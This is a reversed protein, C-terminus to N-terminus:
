RDRYFLTKYFFFTKELLIRWKGFYQDEVKVDRGIMEPMKSEMIAQQPYDKARMSHPFSLMKELLVRNNYPFTLPHAMGMSLTCGSAGLAIRYEWYFLDSHEFNFIPKEMGTEKMYQRYEIETEKLLHPMFFFRTQMIAMQRANLAEPMPFGYKREYFARGIEAIDSKLEVNFAHMNHLVIIKRVENEALNMVYATNHDILKCLIDYDKIDSNNRPVTYLFHHVGVRECIKEAAEADLREQEKCDFSFIHFSDTIGKTCAFTCGSDMGGTLSIAPNGWKKKCLELNGRILRYISEVQTDFEEQTAVEEHPKRPYFRSVTVKGNEFSAILNAGLRFANEYTTMKGPLWRLGTNYMRTKRIRAAYYTMPLNLLDALMQVHSSFYLKEGNQLYHCMKMSTADTLAEVRGGASDLVFLVFVGTWENITDFFADTGFHESCDKLLEHEDWKMRIPNYAHGVLLFVRNSCNFSYFTENRHVYLTYDCISCTNWEGYFPYQNGDIATDNTLLYGGAFLCDRYQPKENLLKKIDSQKLVQRVKM